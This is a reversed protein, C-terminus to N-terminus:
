ILKLKDFNEYLEQITGKNDIIIDYDIIDNESKHNDNNNCYLSNLYVIKGGNKKIIDVENQFRVDTIVINKNNNKNYYSNFIEVWLNGKICNLTPFMNHIIDRGFDTGIKQFSERPTIGLTTINEKDNGHLQEESLSFLIKCIEKVPDGFAYRIYGYKQSIYLGLTDKGSGKKGAIGIIM